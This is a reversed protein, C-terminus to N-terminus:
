ASRGWASVMLPPAYYVSPDATLTLLLDIDARSVLGTGVLREDLQEITGRAWGETGGPVVPGHIEAGVEVLGADTLLAPLRKGFSADAGATAFVASVALFVREAADTADPHSGSNYRGLMAATPGGFDTDEVLLRGGPKLAAVMRALADRHDPLHELVARAHVLDFAADDLPDTLVNHALVDLNAHGHGSLFRPDLDTALVRGTSGVRDALWLAIGGAGCGVELCRWGERVGLDVLLRRSASDFLSELSRLRDQEKRWTQDFVYSTM